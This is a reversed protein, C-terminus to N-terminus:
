VVPQPAAPPSTACASLVAAHVGPRQRWSSQGLPAVADCFAQVSMPSCVDTETGSACDYTGPVVKTDGAVFACSRAWLQVRRAFDANSRVDEAAEDLPAQTIRGAESDFSTVAKSCPARREGDAGVLAAMASPQADGPEPIRQMSIIEHQLRGLCTLDAILSPNYAIKYTDVSITELRELEDESMRKPGSSASPAPAHASGSSLAPAVACGFAEGMSTLAASLDPATPLSSAPPPAPPPTPALGLVARRHAAELISAITGRVADEEYMANAGILSDASDYAALDVMLDDLAAEDIM